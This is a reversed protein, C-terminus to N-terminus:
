ACFSSLKLQVRRFVALINKMIVKRVSYYNYKRKNVNYRIKKVNDIVKCYYNLFIICNLIYVNAFFCPM